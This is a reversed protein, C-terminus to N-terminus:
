KLGQAYRANGVTRGRRDFEEATIQDRLMIALKVLLKRATAIKAVAKPKKKALRKYFAKLRPDYRTSLHAAQGLLFRLLPSGAKSVGGFRVKGASSREVPDLGAFATVQKSVRTFRTVDGITHVVALSTLYGVGKQTRVLQVQEDNEAKDKLWTEIQKIQKNLMEALDFLQTRQLNMSESVEAKKLQLQFHLTKMKGKQLGISHALAQLRNLTQTRQKVLNDRLRMVELIQNSNPDRRFISPFEGKLLLDLILDADRKDSKHRSRARSRILTPNGVLLKHGIEFLMQEFWIANSSAEIGVTATPLSQYFKRVEELNKHLLTLTDTEGTETNCLSLTQQHPHFDVGIYLAM